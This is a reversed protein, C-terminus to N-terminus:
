VLGQLQRLADTFTAQGGKITNVAGSYKAANGSTDTMLKAVNKERGQYLPHGASVLSKVTAALQSRQILLSAVAVIARLGITFVPKNM